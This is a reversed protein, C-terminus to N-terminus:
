FDNDDQDDLSEALNLKTSSKKLAELYIQFNDPLILDKILFFIEKFVFNNKLSIKPRKLVFNHLKSTKLLINM